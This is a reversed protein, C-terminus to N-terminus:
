KEWMEVAVSVSTIQKLSPVYFVRVFSNHISIFSTVSLTLTQLTSIDGLEQRKHRGHDRPHYPFFM